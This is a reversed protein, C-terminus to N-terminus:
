NVCYEFEVPYNIGHANLYETVEQEEPESQSDTCGALEAKIATVNGNEDTVPYVNYANPVFFPLYQNVNKDNTKANNIQLYQNTPAFFKYDDPNLNISKIWEKAAEVALRLDGSATVELYLGGDNYKGEITYEQGSGYTGTHPLYSTVDLSSNEETVCPTNPFKSDFIPCSITVNPSDDDSAPWSIAVFYSELIKDFDVVFTATTLEGSVEENYNRATGEYIEGSNFDATNNKIVGVLNERAKKLESGPINTKINGFDIKVKPESLIIVVISIVVVLIILFSLIGIVIKPNKLKNIKDNM